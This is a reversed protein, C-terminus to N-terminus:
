LLHKIEEEAVDPTSSLPSVQGAHVQDIATPKPGHWIRVIVRLLDAQIPCVEETDVDM